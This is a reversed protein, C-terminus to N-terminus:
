IPAVSSHEDFVTWPSARGHELRRKAVITGALVLAAGVETEAAATTSRSALTSQRGIRGAAV